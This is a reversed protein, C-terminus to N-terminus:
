NAITIRKKKCGSVHKPIFNYDNKFFFYEKSPNTLQKNTKMGKEKDNLNGKVLSFPFLQDFYLTFNSIGQITM